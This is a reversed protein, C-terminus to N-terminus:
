SPWCLRLIIEEQIYFSAKGAQVPRIKALLVECFNQFRCCIGDGACVSRIKTRLAESGAVLAGLTDLVQQALPVGVAAPYEGNLM